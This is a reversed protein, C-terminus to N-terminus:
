RRTLGGLRGGPSNRKRNERSTLFDPISEPSRRSGELWAVQWETIRETRVWEFTGREPEDISERQRVLAIPAEAGEQSKSFALASEYRAFAAFYDSEGALKPAGREPHLWVRYELVEDYFYGAGSKTHGSYTGVLKPNV